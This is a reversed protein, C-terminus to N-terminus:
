SGDTGPLDSPGPNDEEQSLSHRNGGNRRSHAQAPVMAVLPYLPKHLYPQRPQGIFGSKTALTAWPRWVQVPFCARADGASRRLTHSGRPLYLSADGAHM